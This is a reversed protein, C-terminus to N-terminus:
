ASAHAFKRRFFLRSAGGALFVLVLILGGWPAPSAPLAPPTIRELVQGRIGKPPATAAAPVSGTDPATAAAQATPGGRGFGAVAARPAPAGIQALRADLERRTRDDPTWFGKGIADKLRNLVQREASPNNAAFWDRVGLGREDRVYVDHLAQWQDSRVMGPATAQWGFLNDALDVVALTGAYGEAQMAKIWSRNLYRSRM